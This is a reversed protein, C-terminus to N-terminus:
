PVVQYLAYEGRHPGVLRSGNGVTGLRLQSEGPGEGGSIFFSGTQILGPSIGSQFFPRIWCHGNGAAYAELTFPAPPLRPMFSICAMRRGAGSTGYTARPM